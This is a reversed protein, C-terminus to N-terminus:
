QKGARQHVADPADVRGLVRTALQSGEAAQFPGTEEVGSGAQTVGGDLCRISAGADDGDLPIWGHVDDSAAVRPRRLQEVRGGDLSAATVNALLDGREVVAGEVGHEVVGRDDLQGAIQVATLKVALQVPHQTPAAPEEM